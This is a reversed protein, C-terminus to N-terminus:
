VGAVVPEAYARIQDVAMPLGVLWEVTVPVPLKLRANIQGIWTQQQEETMAQVKAADSRLKSACSVITDMVTIPPQPTKVVSQQAYLAPNLKPPEYPVATQSAAKREAAAKRESILRQAEALALAGQNLGHAETYVTAASNSGEQGIWKNLRGVSKDNVLPIEEQVSTLIFSRGKDRVQTRVRVDRGSMTTDMHARQKYWAYDAASEFMEKAWFWPMWLVKIRHGDFFAYADVAEPALGVPDSQRVLVTACFVLRHGFKKNGALHHYLRLAQACGPCGAAMQNKDDQTASMHKDVSHVCSYYYPPAKPDWPDQFVHIVYGTVIRDPREPSPMPIFRFRTSDSKTLDLRRIKPLQQPCDHVHKM